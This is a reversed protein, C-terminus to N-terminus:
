TFTFTCNHPPMQAPHLFVFKGNLDRQVSGVQHVASVLHDKENPFNHGTEETLLYMDWIIWVLQVSRLNSMRAASTQPKAASNYRRSNSPSAQAPFRPCRSVACNQRLNWYKWFVLHKDRKETRLRAQIQPLTVRHRHPNDPVVGLSSCQKCPVKWHFVENM